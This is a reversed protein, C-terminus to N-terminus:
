RSAPLALGVRTPVGGSAEGDGDGRTLASPLVLPVMMRSRPAADLCLKDKVWREVHCGSTFWNSIRKSKLLGVPVIEVLCVSSSGM